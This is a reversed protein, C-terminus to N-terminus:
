STSFPASTTPSWPRSACGARMAPSASWCPPSEMCYGSTGKRHRNRHRPRLVKVVVEADDALTAAHVQALSASAIPLQDFTAFIEGIPKGARAEIRAIAARAPFPPVRDQLKALEDAYDTPLLDRRTSLIQGFKVFVPGLHEIALRLREAPSRKPKPLLALPSLRILTSEPVAARAVQDLRYRAITWVIKFFRQIRSM